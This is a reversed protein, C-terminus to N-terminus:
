YLFSCFQNESFLRKNNDSISEVLKLFKQTFMPKLQLIKQLTIKVDKQNIM